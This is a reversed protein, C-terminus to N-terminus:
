HVASSMSAMSCPPQIEVDGFVDRHEASHAPAPASGSLDPSPGATQRAFPFLPQCERRGCLPTFPGSPPKRRLVCAFHNLMLHTIDCLAPFARDWDANAISDITPNEFQGVISNGRSLNDIDETELGNGQGNAVSRRLADLLSTKDSASSLARYLYQVEIRGLYMAADDRGQFHQVFRVFMTTLLTRLHENM